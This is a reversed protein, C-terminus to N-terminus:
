HWRVHAQMLQVAMELEAPRLDRVWCAPLSGAGAMLETGPLAPRPGEPSLKVKQLSCKGENLKFTVSTRVTVVDESLFLYFFNGECAFSPVGLPLTTALEQQSPRM